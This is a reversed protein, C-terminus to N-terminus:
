KYEFLQPTDFVSGCNQCFYTTKYNINSKVPKTDYNTYTFPKFPNINKSKYTRSHGRVYSDKVFRQKINTSKCNPCILARKKDDLIRNLKTIRDRTTCFATDSVVMLIFSVVCIASKDKYWGYLFFLLFMIGAGLFIYPSVENLEKLEAEAAQQQITKNKQPQSLLNADPQQIINIFSTGCLPCAKAGDMIDKKCKPCIM